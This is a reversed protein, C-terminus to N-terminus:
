IPTTSGTPTVCSKEPYSSSIDGGFSHSKGSSLNTFSMRYEGGVRADISHVKGTFGNPPLWKALADGDTFAKGFM